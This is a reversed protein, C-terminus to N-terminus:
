LDVYANTKHSKYIADIIKNSTIAQSGDIFIDKGCVLRKYFDNILVKHGCGWYAKGGTLRDKECAHEVTGNEYVITLEDNLKISAKECILEIEVPSNSVYCNTAYFMAVAGNKFMITAEATDEVEIFEKLLRTDVSAKICKIDGIFWQLLDLTHIAQNILVGGGEKEWTGRWQASAYYDAGRHWIVLAKAGLVRGVEGSLLLEKVRESNSNYRNQFCIGLKKGTDGSVQIMEAADAASIAMPKETLVHKGAKMADIAMPMHLYHPTCIHVVDINDELIMERYDTFSKCGYKAAAEDAIRRDIDCVAYLKAFPCETIADAHMPFISGCGIIATNLKNLGECGKKNVQLVEGHVKSDSFNHGHAM